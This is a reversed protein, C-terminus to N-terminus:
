ATYKWLLIKRCLKQMADTKKDKNTVEFEHKNWLLKNDLTLDPYEAIVANKKISKLKSKRRRTFTIVTTKTPNVNIGVLSFWRRSFNLEKQIVGRFIGEFSDRIALEYKRKSLQFTSIWDDHFQHLMKKEISNESYSLMNPKSKPKAKPIVPKILGLHEKLNKMNQAGEM